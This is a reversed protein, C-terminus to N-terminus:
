SMAMDINLEGHYSKLTLSAKGSRGFVKQEARRTSVKAWYVTKLDRLKRLSMM